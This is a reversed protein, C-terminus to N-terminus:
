KAIFKAIFLSFGILIIGLVYLFLIKNVLFTATLISIIGMFFVIEAKNNSINKRLKTKIKRIKAKMDTWKEKIKDM